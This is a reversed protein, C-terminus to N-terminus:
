RAVARYFRRNQSAGAPDSYNLTTSTLSVSGITLWDRLNASAQIDFVQGVLGTIRLQSPVSTTTLIPSSPNTTSVGADYLIASVVANFGAQRTLRVRVSGKVNWVVYAGEQFSSVSRSDLVRGDAADLWEITQSRGNRDWDLCYLAVQHTKGDALNIDMTFSTASYVCAALRGSGDAKVLARADSTATDWEHPSAGSIGLTAYGPLRSTDSCIQFGDKGYATQWNGKTTNDLKVFEAAAPVNVTYVPTTANAANSFPSDVSGDTTCVRYAYRTGPNVSNDNFSTVGAPINAVSSFAGTGSQRQLRFTYRGASTDAWTLNVQVPSTATANLAAPASLTTALSEPYFAGQSANHYTGSGSQELKLTRVMYVHSANGTPDTFGTTTLPLSTLRTFAGNPSSARYVYYGEVSSEVPATWTLSVGFSGVNGVLQVPQKVPHLRLTPDGMLAVHVGRSGTNQGLYQGANNQSLKTSFGITEGLGMHHFFWHPRGAWASTLTYSTSGLPARLFNSENDWDGFYSGLFMTFVAKIDNTAFDDSGGIGNCTYFAGGGGGHVWLYSDNSLTSFFTGGPISKTTSAGFFPAFNRWGSAAFADGGKEGWNDCILGRRAVQLAGTRFNHDKNLYQRLLDKETRVFDKNSFCTMNALDVRGVELEVDSPISSQDFKGDGPVNRNAEKNASANNVFSDTWQGDVDGYYVDAPWAGRHDGHGDPNMDGSYPVAVHGFLFVTRVRTPDAAYDAKILAKVQPPTANRAVDHRIVTWGDGVLGRQLRALEFALDGAYTSDVILIVKGRDEILPANVGAMVYGYGRYGISTTKSIAYEYAAANQVLLDTYSTANGALNAITNWGATSSARKQLTYSTANADAAWSLRIQAPLAQVEASVEVAYFKPDTEAFATVLGLCLVLTHLFYRM